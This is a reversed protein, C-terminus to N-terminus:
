NPIIPKEMDGPNFIKYFLEVIEETGLQVTRIGCRSLGQSVAGIRQEIQTRNEEFNDSKGNKKSSNKNMIQNLPNSSPVFSVSPSFPIVIFFTKTMISTQDVFNKIFQTYEKIQIKMLDGIENKYREDLMAIYPRIDLERSQISIQISFDLGNLFSQFQMIVAQQEDASKLAFNISSVMLIGRMAKNKLIVVGERIQEIELFKQTTLQSM